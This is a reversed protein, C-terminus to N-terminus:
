QGLLNPLLPVWAGSIQATYSVVFAPPMSFLNYWFGTHINTWADHVQSVAQMGPIMSLSRMAPSGQHWFGTEGRVNSGFVDLKPPPQGRENPVYTFDETELPSGPTPDVGYGVTKSFYSNAAEGAFTIGAAMWVSGPDGGHMKTLGASMASKGLAKYTWHLKSSSIQSFAASTAAGELGGRIVSMLMNGNTQRAAYASSIEGSVAGWGVSTGGLGFSAAAIVQGALIARGNRFSGLYASGSLPDLAQWALGVFEKHKGAWSGAKDLNKSLWSHGSPDTL